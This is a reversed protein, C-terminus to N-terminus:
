GSGDETDGEASAAVAPAGGAVCGLYRDVAREIAPGFRARNIARGGPRGPLLYRLHFELQKADGTGSFRYTTSASAPEGRPWLWQQDSEFWLAGRDGAQIPRLHEEVLMRAEAAGPARMTVVYFIRDATGWTEQVGPWCRRAEPSRSWEVMRGLAGTFRTTRAVEVEV